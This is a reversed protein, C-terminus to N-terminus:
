NAGQTDNFMLSEAYEKGVIMRLKGFDDYAGYCEGLNMDILDQTGTRLTLPGVDGSAFAAKFFDTLEDTIPMPEASRLYEHIGGKVTTM